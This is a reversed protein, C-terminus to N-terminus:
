MLRNQLDLQRLSRGQHDNPGEGAFKEAFGSTGRVQGPLAAEDVFLMYDVVDAASLDIEKAFDERKDAMGVRAQWGIRTILNTMHIQHEFVMLAVIDSYNSFSGAAPEALSELHSAEPVVAADARAINGLHKISPADGTVYWGGWRREFPSTHDSTYNGLWPMPRGDASTPISKVMMGPVGLTVLNNHCGLCWNQRAFVPKETPQQPVDYFVVGQRPDHAALEIFVGRTYAVAVADNFFITRPHQPDIHAVQASTKSVVAIQSEKPVDLADLVSHLYGFGPEFALRVDGTQIKRNLQVVLDSTPGKRYEIATHELHVFFADSIQGSVVSGSVVFLAAATRWWASRWRRDDTKPANRGSRGISGTMAM